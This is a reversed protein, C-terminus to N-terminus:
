YKKSFNLGNQNRIRQLQGSKAIPNLIKVKDRIRFNRSVSCQHSNKKLLQAPCKTVMEYAHEENGPINQKRKNGDSARQEKPSM